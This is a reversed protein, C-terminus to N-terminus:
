ESVLNQTYDWVIARVSSDLIAKAWKAHKVNKDFYLGSKGDMDSSSALYVSSRSAKAASKGNDPRVLLKFIPFLFRLLSPLMEATVNQTMQTSAQGPYCINMSVRTNKCREAYEYMLAMMSLKSQSYYNLGDFLNEAQLNSLDLKKPIDGGMLTIVRPSSSKLLVEMLQNTLLYPALVNTAFNLEINDENLIRENAASGANNILVDLQGYKLIFRSTLDRIGAKTSIDGILLDVNQNDSIRRIEDIAIEGSAKNRGVVVVRFGLKALSLATQKGIGGTAGTILVVKM